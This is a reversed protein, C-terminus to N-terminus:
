QYPSGSTQGGYYWGQLTTQIAGTATTPVESFPTTTPLPTEIEM